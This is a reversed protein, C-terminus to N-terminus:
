ALLASGAPRAQYLCRPRHSSLPSRAHKHPKSCAQWTCSTPPRRIIASTCVLTEPEVRWLDSPAYGNFLLEESRNSPNEFFCQMKSGENDTAFDATLIDQVPSGVQLDAITITDYGCLVKHDKSDAHKFECFPVQGFTWFIHLCSPMRVRLRATVLLM